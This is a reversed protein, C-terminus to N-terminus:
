DNRKEQAKIFDSIMRQKIMDIYGVANLMNGGNSVYVNTTAYNQKNVLVVMTIEPEPERDLLERAGSIVELHKHKDM